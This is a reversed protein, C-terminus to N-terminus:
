SLSKYLKELKQDFTLFDHDHNRIKQIILSDTFGITNNKYFNLSLQMEDKNDLVLNDVLLLEEFFSTIQEKSQKYFSRLVWETELIVIEPLYIKIKGELCNEFATLAKTFYPQRKLRYTLLVNTDIGITRM